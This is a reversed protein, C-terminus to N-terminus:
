WNCFKQFNDVTIFMINAKFESTGGTILLAKLIKSSLLRNNDIYHKQECLVDHICSAILFTNDTKSGIVRWFLKPITAGDWKYKKPITFKYTIGRYSITVELSELLMFPYKKINQKEKDTHTPLIYRIIPRPISDFQIDLEDDKYWQIM